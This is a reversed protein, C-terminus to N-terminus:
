NSLLFFLDTELNLSTLLAPLDKSFLSMNEKYKVPNKQFTNKQKSVSKILHKLPLFGIIVLSPTNFIGLLSSLDLQHIQIWIWLSSNGLMHKYLMTGTNMGNCCKEDKLIKQRLFNFSFLWIWYKLHLSPKELKRLLEYQTHHTLPDVNELASEKVEIVTNQWRQFLWQMDKYM